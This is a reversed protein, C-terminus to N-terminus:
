SLYGRLRRTHRPHRLKRLAQQVIQRARERTVGIKDGVEELSMAPRGDFGFRMRLVRAERPTLAGMMESLSERLLNSEATDVPSPSTEDEILSGLEDDGDEGIPKELSIPSRSVRLLWRVNEATLDGMEEAIEEPTPKRELLQELRQATRRLGRIRDGMHVPIRITTSQQSLCRTVAQRIWWTAYTSFKTGRHYDFRDAAKILGVNGAQILDLFPLGLGMYKKAVSIVLRTNARILQDRAEQGLTVDRELAPRAAGCGNDALKCEAELGREMLMALEVEQRHTLLPVPGIEAFYLGVKDDTSVESLGGANRSNGNSGTKEVLDETEQGSADGNDRVVIGQGALIGLVQEVREDDVNGEADLEGLAQVIKEVTVHERRGVDVLLRARTILRSISDPLDGFGGNVM